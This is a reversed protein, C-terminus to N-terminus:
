ARAAPAPASMLCALTLLRLCNLLELRNRPDARQVAVIRVPAGELGARLDELALGNPHERSVAVVVRIGPAAQALLTVWRKCAALPDAASVDVLLVAGIAHEFLERVFFAFRRQGPAGYLHVPVDRLRLVAFDFGVTTTRKDPDSIAETIPVEMDMLRGESLVRLATTKGVGVEGVFVVKLPQSSDLM